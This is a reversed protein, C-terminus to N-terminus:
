YVIMDRSEFLYKPTNQCVSNHCFALRMHKFHGDESIGSFITACYSAFTLEPTEPMSKACPAADEGRRKQLRFRFCSQRFYPVSPM